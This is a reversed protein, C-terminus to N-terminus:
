LPKKQNYHPGAKAVLIQERVWQDVYREAATTSDDPNLGRSHATYRPRCSVHGVRALAGSPTGAGDSCGTWGCVLRLGLGVMHCSPGVTADTPSPRSFHRNVEVTTGARLAEVWEAELHDQYAAIVQMERPKPLTKPEPLRVAGVHVLVTEDGGGEYTAFVPAKETPGAAADALM